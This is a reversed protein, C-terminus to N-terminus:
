DEILFIYGILFGVKFANEFNYDYYIKLSLSNSDNDFLYSFSGRIYPFSLPDANGYLNLVGGIGGGVGFLFHRFLLIEMIGGANYSLVMDLDSGGFGWGGMLDGMINICLKKSSRINIGPQIGVTEFDLGNTGGNTFFSAYLGVLPLVTYETPPASPRTPAFVKPPVSPQIPASEKGIFQEIDRARINVTEQGIIVGKETTIARMQLRYVNGQPKISGFVVIQSGVFNGISQASGDSVEGSMNFNLERRARDLFQREVITFKPDRLFYKTLDIVIYESLDNSSTEFDLIAVTVNNFLDTSDIDVTRLLIQAIIQTASKRIAEDLTETNQAFVVLSVTLLLVALLYKKRLM